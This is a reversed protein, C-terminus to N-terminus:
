EEYFHSYKIEHKMIIKGKNGDRVSELMVVFLGEIEDLRNSATAEEMLDEFFDPRHLLVVQNPCDVLRKSGRIFSLRPEYGADKNWKNDVEKTLHHLLIIIGNTKDRLKVLERAIDDEFSTQEKIHPKIYALNDIVLINTEKSHEKCFKNFKAKIVHIDTIENIFDISYSSFYKIVNNINNIVEESLKGRKGSLQYNDLRLKRGIFCKIVEESKMEFTFWQVNVKANNTIIRDILDVVFRSKGLKALAAILIFKSESISVLEDFKNNGTVLYSRKKGENIDKIEDVTRVCANNFSITRIGTTQLEIIKKDIQVLIEEASSDHINESIITEIDTLISKKYAEQLVYLHFKWEQENPYTANVITNFEQLLNDNHTFKVVETIASLHLNFGEKYISLFIQWIVNCTKDTFINDNGISEIIHLLV